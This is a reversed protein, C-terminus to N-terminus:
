TRIDLTWILADHSPTASDGCQSVDDNCQSVDDNCQSVDDNCKSVDDNCLSNIAPQNVQHNTYISIEPGGSALKATKVHKQVVNLFYKRVFEPKISMVSSQHNDMEIFFYSFFLFFSVSVLNM